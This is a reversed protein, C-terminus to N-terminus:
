ITEELAQERLDQLTFGDVPAQLGNDRQEYGQMAATGREFPTFHITESGSQRANANDSNSNYRYHDMLTGVAVQEGLLAGYVHDTRFHVGAWCRGLGVNQLLKNLERHVTVDDTDSGSYSTRGGDSTPEYLTDIGPLDLLPEDQFMAKLVTVCAGGLTSHGSPYAPHAPSGEPYALPLLSGEPIEDGSWVNEYFSSDDLIADLRLEPQDTEDEYREVRDAYTEPRIRRHVAWKHHWAATLANRAVRALLDLVGVAGSEIYPFIDEDDTYALAPDPSAGNEGLYLAARLYPEYAPDARVYAALDRGTSIFRSGGSEPDDVELRDDDEPPVQGPGPEVGGRVGYIIDEWDDYEEGYDQYETFYQIEPISDFAGIAVDSLLPQSVLPGATAPDDEPWELVGRAPNDTNFLSEQDFEEIDENRDHTSSFNDFFRDRNEAMWYLDVMEAQTRHSDYAPAPPMTGVWSEIGETAFEWSANPSVFQRHDNTVIDEWEEEEIAAVLNEYPPEPLPSTDGSNLAKAYVYPRRDVSMFRSDVVTEDENSEHNIDNEDYHDILRSDATSRKSEAESLRGSTDVAAASGASGLGFIGAGGAAALGQLLTRRDPSLLSNASDTTSDDTRSSYRATDRGDADISRKGDASNSM